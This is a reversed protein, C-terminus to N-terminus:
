STKLLKFFEEVESMPPDETDLHFKPQIGELMENMRYTNARDNVEEEGAIATYKEDSVGM